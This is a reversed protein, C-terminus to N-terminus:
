PVIDAMDDGVPWPADPHFIVTHNHSSIYGLGGGVFVVRGDPLQTHGSCFLLIPQTTGPITPRDTIVTTDGSTPDFVMFLNSVGGRDYM